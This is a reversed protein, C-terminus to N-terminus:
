LVTEAQQRTAATRRQGALPRQPCGYVPAVLQKTMLLLDQEPPKRHEGSPERQLRRLRYTSPLVEFPSLNQVEQRGQHILRQDQHILLLAALCTVPKQLRNPLVTLLLKVLRPLLRGYLPMM